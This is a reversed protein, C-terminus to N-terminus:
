IKSPIHFYLAGEDAKVSFVRIPAVAPLTMADGKLIDFIAGHRPCKVTHSKFDIEGDGLSESDHTCINEFALWGSEQTNDKALIISLPRGDDLEIELELTDKENLDEVEELNIIKAWYYNETM